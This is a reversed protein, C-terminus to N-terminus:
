FGHVIPLLRLFLLQELNSNRGGHIKELNKRRAQSNKGHSHDIESNISNPFDSIRPARRNAALSGRATGPNAPWPPVAMRRARAMFAGIARTTRGGTDLTAHWRRQGFGGGDSATAGRDSRMAM